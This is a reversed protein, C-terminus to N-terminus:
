ASQGAPVPRGPVDWAVARRAIMLAVMLAAALGFQVPCFPYALLFAVVVAFGAPEDPLFGDDLGLRLLFAVPVALLTMDYIYVYPTVLLAATALAAAKLGHPARSRWLRCVGVAVILGLGAHLTWALAEGGGLARVLGFMSQLKWWNGLGLVLFTERAAPMAEVFALWPATGFALWSAAALAVATGAAAGITRWHGGVVLVLPILLGFQPKYTMLGFLCGALVPRRPLAVLAGGLLAATLFGNQTATVNWLAAPFGLAVLVGAWGGVIARITLLYLPATVALWALMAPLLPLLAFPVALLLFPPPYFMPYHDPFPRGTAAVVVHKAAAADWALAPTGDLALRGASWLAAFDNVIPRGDPDVLWFGQLVSGALLVAYGLALALAVTAVLRRPSLSQTDPLAPRATEAPTAPLSM